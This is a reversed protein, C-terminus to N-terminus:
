SLMPLLQKEVMAEDNMRPWPDQCCFAHGALGLSSDDHPPSSPLHVVPLVFTM